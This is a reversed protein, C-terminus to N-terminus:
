PISWECTGAAVVRGGELYQTQYTCRGTIGEYRGTGGRLEWRGGGRSGNNKM